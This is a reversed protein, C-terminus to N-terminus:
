EKSGLGSVSEKIESERGSVTRLDRTSNPNELEKM